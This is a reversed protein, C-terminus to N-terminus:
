SAHDLAESEFIAFFECDNVAGLKGIASWIANLTRDDEIHPLVEWLTSITDARSGSYFLAVLNYEESTFIL